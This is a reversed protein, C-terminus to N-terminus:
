TRPTQPQPEGAANPWLVTDANKSANKMAVHWNGDCGNWAEHYLLLAERLERIAELADKAIRVTTPHLGGNEM